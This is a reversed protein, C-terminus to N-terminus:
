RSYNFISKMYSLYREDECMGKGPSDSLKAVPSGNCEVMKVVIQPADKGCDNTLYTGIGFSVNIHHHFEQYLAFMKDLDLGDSFVAWKTMPNIKMKEYHHILKHCWEFPNGSDHRCGDFLKTFYLDFDELFSDMSIVDTLAIGLNGRYMQVWAELAAKQSDKIRHHMQQHAQLFEHAMTGLPKIDYKNALHVNSTGIFMKNGLNSLLTDVVYEQHQFSARRRTGFDGFQLNNGKGLYGKLREIKTNLNSKAIDIDDESVESMMESVISLIPIEFFITEIWPGEIEIELDNSEKGIECKTIYETNFRFRKLFRLYAEDFFGLYKLYNYEIDSMEINELDLLNEQLGDLMSPNFKQAGRNKFKYKVIVDSYKHFVVRGMTFKYLDTDTMAAIMDHHALEFDIETFSTTTWM